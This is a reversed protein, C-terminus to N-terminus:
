PSTVGQLAVLERHTVGHCHVARAWSCMNSCCTSVKRIMSHDLEPRQLMTGATEIAEDSIASLNLGSLTQVFDKDMLVTAKAADWTAEGGLLVTVLIMSSKAGEPPTRLARLEAIDRMHIYQLAESAARSAEGLLQVKADVATM